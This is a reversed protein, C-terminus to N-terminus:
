SNRAEEVVTNFRPDFQDEAKLSKPIIENEHFLDILAQQPGTLEGPLPLVDYGGGGEVQEV